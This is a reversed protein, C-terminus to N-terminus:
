PVIGEASARLVLIHEYKQGPDLRASGFHPRNPTDPFKQPELAVGDGMRYLCGGKGPLTADLFNGAYMQLGPETSMVEMSRGSAMDEIRAALAPKATLGKDLVWSHDFGRGIRIQPDNGDRLGVSIQRSTRFDFPTGEVAALEGTPILTADVPIYRAAPITLHQGTAGASSSHGAMNFLAHNTMNIITPKTTTAAMTITLAGTENLAYTVRATLEGPYGSEGDPSTLELVVFANAGSGFSQIQWNKRDFGQDGGHLSNAGDNLPLNYTKDDLVFVGGGIRNAYRGVTVGLYSRTAEYEAPSDHGLVVDVLAGDRDPLLLSQLTAGYSLIRASIGRTNTLVVAQVETGDALPGASVREASVAPSAPCSSATSLDDTEPVVSFHM